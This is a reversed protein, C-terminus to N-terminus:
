AQLERLIDYVFYTAILDAGARRIALLSEWRAPEEDLWGKDAAAKIMAYEGSVQYAAVPLASQRRTQAIIDLYAGAPKVMLLDAGEAEDLATERRAERQNAMDMQYSKKDTPIDKQAVPASALADRFPGYFCSAYKATYSMIGRHSFGAGDLAHRLAAVRGDMMDSPALMDAGAEAHSLGMQCLAELTADNAVVGDQVIGDHGYISYPDLAVDTMLHMEPAAEKITRIARQMLGQKNWAETGANDKLTPDVKVFLLVARCGLQYLTKVEGALLDLSFRYYGPMSPIAQKEQKGEVAFLPAIFDTPHLQTEAVLQRLASSHRLRRPRHLM